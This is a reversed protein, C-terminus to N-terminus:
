SSTLRKAPVGVFTENADFDELCVSGAGLTSWAGIYKNPTVVSSAGIFVGTELIVGGTLTANPAVHCYDAIKCDHDISASSNIICHQGIVADAQIIAGAFVVTGANLIARNSVIAKPHIVTAWSFYGSLVLDLKQRVVNSGIAIIVQVDKPLELNRLKGLHPLDFLTAELNDDAFGLVQWNALQATDAVVKAHGGAGIIVLKM